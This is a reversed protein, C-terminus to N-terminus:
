FRCPRDGTSAPDITRPHLSGVVSAVGRTSPDSTSLVTGRELTHYREGSGAPFLHVADIGLGFQDGTIDIDIAGSALPLRVWFHSEFGSGDEDYGVDVWGSVIHATVGACLLRERLHKAAIGCRGGPGKWSREMEARLERATAEAVELDRKQSPHRDM